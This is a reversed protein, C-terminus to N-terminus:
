DIQKLNREIEERKPELFPPLDLKTGLSEVSADVTFGPGDTALEFMIGNEEKFYLSEFYFRDKMFLIDYGYEKIKEKWYRLDEGDKVRIALHHVSGKGPKEVPGDQEVILIEGFAHGATSQYLLGEETHTALTYGFIKELTASLSKANQVTIEVPGMGLIRSEEPVPSDPWTTWFDPLTDNEGNLLVLRLGDPDEFHIAERGANSTIGSHLIHHEDLRRLWYHLSEQSPVFLGIKTIANTGRHTRGANPIEFFTLETGPSGTLDGYFLHYMKPNEQNVTKKVRRLGLIDRYFHHNEGANKTIMSIHHHGAIHSM